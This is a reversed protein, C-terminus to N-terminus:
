RMQWVPFRDRSDIQVIFFPNTEPFLVSFKLNGGLIGHSRDGRHLRAITQTV